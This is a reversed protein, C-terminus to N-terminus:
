PLRNYASTISSSNTYALGSATSLKTDEVGKCAAAKKQDLADYEARNNVVPDGVANVAAKIAAMANNLDRKAIGNDTGMRGDADFTKSKKKGALLMNYAKEQTKTANTFAGQTRKYCNDLATASSTAPSVAIAIVAVMLAPKLSRYPLTLLKM